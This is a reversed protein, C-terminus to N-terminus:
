RSVIGVSTEKIYELNKKTFTGKGVKYKVKSYLDPYLRRVSDVWAVQVAYPEALKQELTSTFLWKNEIDIKPLLEDYFYGIMASTKIINSKSTGGATGHVLINRQKWLSIGFNLLREVILKSWNDKDERFSDTPGILKWKMSIRGQLFHSWGIKQQEAMAESLIRTSVFERTYIGVDYDDFISRIGAIIAMGVTSDTIELIASKLRLFAMTRFQAMREETCCFIHDRTEEDGCLECHPTDFMGERCRRRKTAM